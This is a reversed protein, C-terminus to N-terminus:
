HWAMPPDAHRVEIPKAGRLISVPLLGATHVIEEPSYPPLRGLTGPFHLERADGAPIGGDRGGRPLARSHGHLSFWIDGVGQASM